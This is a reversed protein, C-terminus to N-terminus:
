GIPVELVQYEFKEKTYIKIREIGHTLTYNKNKGKSLNDTLDYITTPRGDDSKRLGRGISQLIRIQSKTPSAFIINHLNRINTGTSFTGMSAVIIGDTEKEITTRIFERDDAGVSGSVYFVKRKNSAKKEILAHLPKGHKEVYQYLVLTNGKLDLALNAIFRNRPEYATIFDLEEAYTMKKLNKKTQEPYKLALAFIKLQALTDSAILDKTTTVQMTPGFCGELVLKHVQTGDLTGTTGIRLWANVLWGMIKTLSQAKFLHAEDGFVAGFQRFWDAGMNIASQWTTIVIRATTQKEKGSYIRHILRPGDFTSDQSSYECFDKYMQEVLATTPVIVIAKGLQNIRSFSVEANLFWRLIQYIILSKGSGTPSVLLAQHDTIARCIGDRQYDRIEISKNNYFAPFAQFEGSGIQRPVMIGASLNLRYKRSDAFKQLHYLLGSPLTNNRGNFIRIKGDWMRNRYAPMFQYGPALFSFFEVLEQIVGADECKIQLTARNLPHVEITTMGDYEPPM